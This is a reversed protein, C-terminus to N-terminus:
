CSLSEIYRARGANNIDIGKAHVDCSKNVYYSFTGNDDDGISGDSYFSIGLATGTYSLSDKSPIAEIIRLIQNTGLTRNNSSDVFVTIDQSWDNACIGSVIPCMTVTQGISVAQLRSFNVSKTLDRVFTESNTDSTLATLSSIAITSAIGIIALTMLLELLTFGRQFKHSALNKSNALQKLNALHKSNALHRKM